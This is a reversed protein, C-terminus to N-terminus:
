GEGWPSPIQPSGTAPSRPIILNFNLSYINPYLFAPALPSLPPPILLRFSPTVRRELSPSILAALKRNYIWPLDTDASILIRDEADARKLIADDTAEQLGYDRVHTADHGAERLGEAVLPSLANDILFKM